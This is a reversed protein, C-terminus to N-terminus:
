TFQGGRQARAAKHGKFRVAPGLSLGYSAVQAVRAGELPHGHSLVAEAHM